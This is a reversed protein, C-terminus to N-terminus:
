TNMRKKDALAMKEKEIDRQCEEIERTYGGQSKMWDLHRELQLIRERSRRILEDGITGM